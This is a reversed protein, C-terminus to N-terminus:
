HQKLHKWNSTKVICGSTSETQHATTNFMAMLIVTIQLVHFTLWSTNTLKKVCACVNRTRIHSDTPRYILWPNRKFINCPGEPILPQFVGDQPGAYQSQYYMYTFVTQESMQMYLINTKETSPLLEETWKELRQWCCVKDNLSKDPPMTWFLM